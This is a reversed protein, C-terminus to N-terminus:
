DVGDEPELESIIQECIQRTIKIAQDKPLNEVSELAKQASEEIIQKAQESIASVGKVEGSVTGSVEGGELLIPQRDVLKKQAQAILSATDINLSVSLGKVKEDLQQFNPSLSALIHQRNIVAIASLATLGGLLLLRPIVSKAKM